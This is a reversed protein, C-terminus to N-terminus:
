VHFMTFFIETQPKVTRPQQWVCYNRVYFKKLIKPYIHKLIFLLICCVINHTKYYHSYYLKATRPQVCCFSKPLSYPVRRRARHPLYAKLSRAFGTWASDGSKRVARFRPYRTGFGFEQGNDRYRGKLGVVM